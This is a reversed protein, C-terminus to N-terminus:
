QVNRPCYSIYKERELIKEENNEEGLPEPFLQLFFISSSFYIEYQVRCRAIVLVYKGLYEDQLM